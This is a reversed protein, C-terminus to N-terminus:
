AATRDAKIAAYCTPCRPGSSGTYKKKCESCERNTNNAAGKGAKNGAAKPKHRKTERTPAQAGGLAAVAKKVALAIADANDGSPRDRKLDGTAAIRAAASTKTRQWTAKEAATYAANVVRWMAPLLRQAAPDHRALTALGLSSFVSDWDPDQLLDLQFMGATVSRPRLMTINALVRATHSRAQQEMVGWYWPVLTVANSRSDIKIQHVDSRAHQASVLNMHGLFAVIGICSTASALSADVATLLPWAKTPAGQANLVTTAAGKMDVRLEAAAQAVPTQEVLLSRVCGLVVALRRLEEYLAQRWATTVSYKHSGGVDYAKGTTILETDGVSAATSAREVTVEASSPLRLAAFTTALMSASVFAEANASGAAPAADSLATVAACAHSPSATPDAALRLLGMIPDLLVGCGKACPRWNAVTTAVVLPHGAPLAVATTNFNHSM